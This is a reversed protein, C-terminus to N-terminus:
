KQQFLRCKEVNRGKNELRESGFIEVESLEGAYKKIM